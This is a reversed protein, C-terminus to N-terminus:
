DNTFGGKELAEILKKRSRYIRSAVANESLGLFEAIQTNSWEYVFKLELITRCGEPMKRIVAVLDNYQSVADISESFYEDPVEEVSCTRCEKRLIDIAANKVTVILWRKVERPSLTKLVEFHRAAKIFADHVADEALHPLKTVSIAAKYMPKEYAEYLLAFKQRNIENEFELTYTLM